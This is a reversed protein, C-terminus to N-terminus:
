DATCMDRNEKLNKKRMEGDGCTGKELKGLKKPKLPNEQNKKKPEDSRKNSFLCDLALQTCIVHFSSVFFLLSFSLFFFNLLYSKSKKEM